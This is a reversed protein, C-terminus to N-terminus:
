GLSEEYNAQVASDSTQTGQARSPTTYRAEAREEQAKKAAKRKKEIEEKERTKISSYNLASLVMFAAAAIALAARRTLVWRLGEVESKSDSNLLVTIEYNLESIKSNVRRKEEELSMKRDNFMGKLDEQLSKIDQTVKQNLIDAEHQLQARTSRQKQIESQRAAQLTTRLESCAARFLYTENETDSKSVLGEKAIDLNVALMLRIAKMLTVAQEQSFGEKALQQVLSYTDFHHEYPSAELHPHHKHNEGKMESPSPISLVMDLEKNQLPEGDGIKPTAQEEVADTHEVESSETEKAPETDTAEVQQKHESAAAEKKPPEDQSQLLPESPKPPPPLNSSAAPGYRQPFADQAVRRSFHLHAKSSTSQPVQRLTRYTNPRCSKIAQFLTAYFQPQRPTAMEVVHSAILLLFSTSGSPFDHIQGLSPELDTLEVCTGSEQRILCLLLQVASVKASVGDRRKEVVM